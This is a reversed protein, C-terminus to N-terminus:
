AANETCYKPWAAQMGQNMNYRDIEGHQPKPAKFNHLSSCKQTWMCDFKCSVKGLLCPLLRLQLPYHVFTALLGNVLRDSTRASHLAGPGRAKVQLVQGERLTLTEHDPVRLAKQAEGSM